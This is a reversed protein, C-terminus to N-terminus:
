TDTKKIKNILKFNFFFSIQIFCITIFFRYSVKERHTKILKLKRLHETNDEKEKILDKWQKHLDLKVQSNENFNNEFNLSKKVSRKVTCVGKQNSPKVCVTKNSNTKISEVQKEAELMWSLDENDSM